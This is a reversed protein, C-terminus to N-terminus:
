AGENTAFGPPFLGQAYSRHLTTLWPDARDHLHALALLEFDDSVYAAADAHQTKRYAALYALERLRTVESAFETSPPRATNLQSLREYHRVWQSDFPDRDRLELVAELNALKLNSFLVGEVLEFLSQLSPM